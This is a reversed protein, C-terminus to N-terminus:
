ALAAVHPSDGSHGIVAFRDMGLAEALEAVDAPWDLFQRNPQFDSLGYGPRDPAILRVQLRQTTEQLLAGELRSDNGGHFFLIPAGSPDGYEAYGLKRGGALTIQQNTNKNV